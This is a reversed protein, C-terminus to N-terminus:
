ELMEPIILIKIGAIPILIIMFYEAMEELNKDILYIFINMAIKKHQLYYNKNHLNCMKKIELHFYKKQNLDKICPTMDMGGGFWSKSTVIFRTNFHFAPIKPNKM